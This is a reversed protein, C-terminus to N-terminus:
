FPPTPTVIQSQFVLETEQSVGDDRRVKILHYPSTEITLIVQNSRPEWFQAYVVIKDGQRAVREIITAYGSYPQRGRFVAIAFYQEFDLEVLQDLAAQSILGELHDIERRTTVLVVRPELGGYGEEPSYTDNREITEFPLETGEPGCATMAVLIILITLRLLYRYKEM